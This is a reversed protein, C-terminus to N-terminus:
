FRRGLPVVKCLWFLCGLELLMRRSTSVFTEFYIIKWRDEKLRRWSIRRGTESQVVLKNLHEGEECGAEGAMEAFV